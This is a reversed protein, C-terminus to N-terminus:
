FNVGFDPKWVSKLVFPYLFRVLKYPKQLALMNQFSSMLYEQKWVIRSKLHGTNLDYSYKTRTLIINTVKKDIMQKINFARRINKVQHIVGKDAAKKIVNSMDIRRQNVGFALVM